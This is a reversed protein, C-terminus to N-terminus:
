NNKSENLFLQPALYTKIKKICIDNKRNALTVHVLLCTNPNTNVVLPECEHTVCHALFYFM